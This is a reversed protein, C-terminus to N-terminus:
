GVSQCPKSHTMNFLKDKYMCWQRSGCPRHSMHCQWHWFTCHAHWYLPFTVSNWSYLTWPLGLTLSHLKQSEFNRSPAILHSSSQRSYASPPHPHQLWHAPPSPSPNTNAPQYKELTRTKNYQKASRHHVVAFDWLGITMRQCYSKIGDWKCTELTKEEFKKLIRLFAVVSWNIETGASCKNKAGGGERGWVVM